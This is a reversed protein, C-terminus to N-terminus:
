NDSDLAWSLRVPIFRECLRLKRKGLQGTEKQDVRVESPATENRAFRPSELADLSFAM